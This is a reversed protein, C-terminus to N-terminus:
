IQQHTPLYVIFIGDYQHGLVHFLLDGKTMSKGFNRKANMLFVDLQVQKELPIKFWPDEFPFQKM